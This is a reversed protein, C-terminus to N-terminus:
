EETLFIEALQDAPDAAMVQEVFAPDHFKRALHALSRLHVDPSEGKARLMAILLQPPSSMTPFDWTGEGKGLLLLPHPLGACAGHLLVVGPGLEIPYSRASELLPGHAADATERDGPIAAAIMRRLAEDLSAGKDIYVAHVRYPITSLDGTEMSGPDDDTILQPYAVLLNNRPFKTAVVEPLIDISPTWFRGSRREAPLLITDSDAIDAFLRSRSEALSGAELLVTPCAPRIGEVAVHLERPDHGALYVRLEAGLQQALVKADRLLLAFDRRGEVLPPLPLHLRRTTNLPHVLRCFILRSPCNELLNDSISGFMRSRISSGGEWGVLTAGARLEKAARVIGDSINIDVRVSPELPIEAAAAHSLCHALLKEGEAVADEM